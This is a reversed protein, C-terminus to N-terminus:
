LHRELGLEFAFARSARHQAHQTRNFPGTNLNANYQFPLSILDAIPNQACKALNETDDSHAVSAYSTVVVLAGAFAAARSSGVDRRASPPEPPAPALRQTM